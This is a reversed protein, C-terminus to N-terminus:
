SQAQHLALKAANALFNSRSKYNPDTRVVQDIQYILRHPLTINIREAQGDYKSIDIAINFWQGGTYIGDTDQKLYEFVNKAQPIEEGSEALAEFHCDLASLAETFIDENPETAFFCGEIDPFFGSASGDEGFHVYAPYINM